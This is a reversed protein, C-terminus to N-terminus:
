EYFKTNKNKVIFSSQFKIQGCLLSSSQNTIAVHEALNKMDVEFNQINQHSHQVPHITIIIESSEDNENTQINMTHSM